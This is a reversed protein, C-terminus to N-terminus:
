RVGLIGCDILKQLKSAINPNKLHEGAAHPDNQMQELILRMAPDSLIDRVEPDQMAAEARKKPDAETVSSSRYYGEKAEANNPDLELAKTFCAAAKSNEKLALLINGKRLHGKIFNPDLRICEDCDKLGLNFEALKVYCAARNSYLKGDDPNRKIAESYHKVAEPYKGKQFYENGKAKEELSLEPNIYAKREMEQMTKKVQNYKKLVDQARHESLSKEFNTIADEYKEMKVYANAIRAFAKAILKFDARHERGIEIGKRCDEICNDLDGKEFHVAARNTYFTLNKPDYEMAKTYHAIAVDFDKNKYAANGLEKEKIAKRQEDNLDPTDATMKKEQTKEKNSSSSNLQHDSMVQPLPLTRSQNHSIGPNFSADASLNIGLLVGLANVFRPDNMFQTMLERSSKAVNFMAMFDPQNLYASTTPNARLKDLAGPDAFPNPMSKQSASIEKEVEKLGNVLQDNNPNLKLGDQYTTVAEEYRKLFTLAAGVRSYGKPWDPKLQVTKNADDLAKEYQGLSAYAASRNSYFIHNNPNLQIAETYCKIAEQFNKEQLALNGKSKWENAQDAAM